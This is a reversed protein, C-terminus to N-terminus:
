EGSRSELAAALEADRDDALEGDLKARLATELRWGIEPGQPVGAALLDEGTIALRVNRLEALWRHAAVGADSWRPEGWAGALAVGELSDYSAADYVESSAEAHALEDALADACTAARLVLDRETAPFKLDDLLVRMDREVGEDLGVAMPQLLM